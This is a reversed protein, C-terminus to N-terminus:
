DSCFQFRTAIVCVRFRSLFKVNSKTSEPNYPLFIIIKDSIDIDDVACHPM